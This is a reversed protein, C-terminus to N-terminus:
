CLFYLIIALGKEAYWFLRSLVSLVSTFNSSVIDRLWGLSLFVQTKAFTSFEFRLLLLKDPYVHDTRHM